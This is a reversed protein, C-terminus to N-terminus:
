ESGFTACKGGEDKSHKAHIEGAEILAQAMRGYSGQLTWAMGTDVLEQFFEKTQEDSMDGAEYAMIKSVMDPNRGSAHQAETKRLSIIGAPHKEAKFSNDGYKYTEGIKYGEVAPNGHGMKAEKWANCLKGILHEKSHKSPKWNVYGVVRGQPASGSPIDGEAGGTKSPKHRSMAFDDEHKAEGVLAKDVTGGHRSLHDKIENTDKGSLHNGCTTCYLGTDRMVVSHKAEKQRSKAGETNYDFVESNDPKEIAMKATGKAYTAKVAKWKGSLAHKAKGIGMENDFSDVSDKIKGGAAKVDKWPMKTTGEITNVAM